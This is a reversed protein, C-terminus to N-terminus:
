RTTSLVHPEAAPDGDAAVRVPMPLPVIQGRQTGFEISPDPVDPANVFSVFRALKAEDELVAAWEDTYSGVHRDMAADLDAAIGLEDDVIVRRVYALADGHEESLAELWAATRQLRGATRIYFMLFRDILRVLDETALDSAFLDAHRPRFG